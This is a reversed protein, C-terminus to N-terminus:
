CCLESARNLIAKFLRSLQDGPLLVMHATGPEVTQTLMFVLSTLSQPRFDSLSVAQSNAVVSVPCQSLVTHDQTQDLGGSGRFRSM